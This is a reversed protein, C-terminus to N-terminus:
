FESFLRYTCRTMKVGIVGRADGGSVPGSVVLTIDHYERM